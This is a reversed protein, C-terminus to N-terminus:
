GANPQPRVGDETLSYDVHPPVLERVPRDIIGCVFPASKRTM